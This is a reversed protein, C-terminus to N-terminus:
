TEGQEMEETTAYLEMCMVTDQRGKPHVEYEDSVQQSGPM